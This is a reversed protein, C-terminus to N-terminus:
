KGNPKPLLDVNIKDNKGPTTATTQALVGGPAVNPRKPLLKREALGWLSSAIFYVCMGAAVSYFMYGMFITMYFFVKHQMEMEPTTAPPMLMKQQVLFLCVTLIPLLNFSPGLFPLVVPFMFLSDPAALNSVWLFHAGRMEVSINFAQYLGFFIPLQILAPLCGGLPHCKNKSFLDLQAKAFKEPANKYKEKLATLEPQLEQMKAAALAQKRSLPFMGSRVVITLLIISWGYPWPLFSLGQHFTSLLWLLLQPVGLRGSIGYDIIREAGIARLLDPRKPGTFLSFKHSVSAAGDKADKAALDLETSTFQLTGTRFKTDTKVNQPEEDAFVAKTSSFYPTEIQNAQPLLLAAFYQVDIGAYKLPTKWEEERQNVQNKYLTDPTLLQPTLVGAPSLFGVAIDRTKQTYFRNELPLGVPGSLVYQLKQPQESLNTLTIEFGLSYAKYEDETKGPAVKELSYKKRIEVSKDPMLYRWTVSDERQEDKVLEWDVDKLSKGLKKLEADIVPVDTQLTKLSAKPEVHIVSLPEKPRDLDHYRRDILQIQSVTAGQSDFKALLRYGSEPKNSGIVVDDLHPYKPLELPKADKEAPAKGVEPKAEFADVGNKKADDKKVVKAPVPKPPPPFLKPQIFLGWIWLIMMSVIIFNMFRQQEQM